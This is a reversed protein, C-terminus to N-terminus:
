RGPYLRSHTQQGQPGCRGVGLLAAAVRSQLFASGTGSPEGRLNEPCGKVSVLRAQACLPWTGVESGGSPVLEPGPECTSQGRHSPSCRSSLHRHPRGRGPRLVRGM